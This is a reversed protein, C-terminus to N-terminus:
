IQNLPREFTLCAVLHPRVEAARVAEKTAPAQALGRSVLFFDITSSSTGVCTPADPARVTGGIRKPFGIHELTEPTMNFDVGVCWEFSHGQAHRAVASLIGTERRHAKAASFTAPTYSM